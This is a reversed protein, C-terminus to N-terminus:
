RPSRVTRQPAPAAPAHVYVRVAADATGASRLAQRVRDRVTGGDLGEGFLERTAADLRALPLDLGRVRGDRIEMATMHGYGGLLSLFLPDAPVPRGDVEIHPAPPAPLDNM